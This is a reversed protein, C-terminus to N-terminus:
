FLVQLYHLFLLFNLIKLLCYQLLSLKYTYYIFYQLLESDSEKADKKSQVNYTVGYLTNDTDESIGHLEENTYM